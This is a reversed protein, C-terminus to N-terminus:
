GAHKTLRISTDDREVTDVTADIIAQGLSQEEETLSPGGPCSVEANLAKEDISFDFSLRTGAECGDLSGDGVFATAAETVALKFDDVEGPDLASMRGVGSLALRGLLVYEPRAPVTLRVHSNDIPVVM